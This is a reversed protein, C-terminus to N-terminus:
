VVGHVIVQIERGEYVSVAHFQVPFPSCLLTYYCVIRLRKKIRAGRGMMMVVM